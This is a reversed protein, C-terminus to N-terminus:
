NRPQQDLTVAIQQEEGDTIVTVDVTEGVTTKTQLYVTFDQFTERMPVKLLTIIPSSTVPLTM